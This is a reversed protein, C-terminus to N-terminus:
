AAAGAAKRTASKTEDWWGRYAESVREAMATGETSAIRALMDRRGQLSTVAKLRCLHEWRVRCEHQWEWSTSDVERGDVLTVTKM